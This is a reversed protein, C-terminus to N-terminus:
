HLSIKNLISDLAAADRRSRRPSPPVGPQSQYVALEDLNSEDDIIKLADLAAASAARSM